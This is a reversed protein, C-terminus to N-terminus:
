RGVEEERASKEHNFKSRPNFKVANMMFGKIWFRKHSRRDLTTSPIVVYPARVACRASVPSPEIQTYLSTLLLTPCARFGAIGM